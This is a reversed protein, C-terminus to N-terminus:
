IMGILLVIGMGLMIIGAFLHLIRLNKNRKEEAKKVDMGFYTGITIGIMPLVFIFNYVLLLLFAEQYTEKHALMGIIVIYPGSTCPLLFLSVLLGIFFAGIPNTISQVLAKLKPRWKMPVEMLFGKGYWFFDKLNFLGLIIAIFGITKIFVQSTEISAIISYLGLGMLLYSLFISFSFSLGSFLARKKEGSILITTMLILLVAFACPNVADVIAASLLVPITLTESFSQKTKEAIESESNPSETGKQRKDLYSVIQKNGVFCEGESYLFPVGRDMLAINEQDCIQNFEEANNPNQYIEKRILESNLNNTHIYEEVIACHPCGQGYYLVPQENKGFCLNLSIFFFLFFLFLHKSHLFFRKM